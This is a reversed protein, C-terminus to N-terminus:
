YTVAVTQLLNSKALGAGDTDAAVGLRMTYLGPPVLRDNDDMGDWVMRYRGASVVRNQTLQRVLHGSLDFIEMEVTENDGLLVVTFEAVLEDNVGDGNPTAVRPSISLGQFLEKSEPQAVVLLANSTVERLADGVDVRQWFVQDSNRLSAELQGGASYLIAPFDLRVVEVDADLLPFSVHLSDGFGIVTVGESPELEDLSAPGTFLRVKGSMTEDEGIVMGSPARLLIENFGQELTDVGVFISFSQEVGLAEVRTPTVEGLLRRAVPDSFNLKISKLTAAVDPSDSILTARIKLIGRPAPSTIATGTQDEYLESLDSWEPGEEFIVVKEGQSKKFARGYYKKSGAEGRGLLTGDDKYYLTDPLLVNGTKTQMVVKTGPPMDAEWEIETLNQSGPLRIPDSELWVEPQFGTGFLQMEALNVFNGHGSLQNTAEWELNFFRAKVLDFELRDVHMQTPVFCAGCISREGVEVQEVSAARHWKLSGDPERSGDSFDLAYNPFSVTHENGRFNSVMRQANVWYTSGLDFLLTGLPGGVDVVHTKVSIKSEVNGDILLDPNIALKTQVSGGRLFAGGVIEDAGGWVELEALRPLERRYYRIPGRRFDALQNYIDETVAFERQSAGEGLLKTFEILGQVEPDLADYAERDAVEKGRGLASSNVVVQVFRIAQERSEQGANTLDVEFLRQSSNPELTQIVHAFDLTAGAPAATPKQGDSTLVDFLRFPDGDEAFRVVVRDAIVLRGLDVTFWWEAAINQTAGSTPPDPEWYTDMRGDFVNVVGERNSGGEIADLLEIDEKAKGRIEEPPRARLFDTITLMANAERRLENPRVGDESLVVTKYPTTWVAFQDAGEITVVNSGITHGQQQAGANGFAGVFILAHTLYGSRSM